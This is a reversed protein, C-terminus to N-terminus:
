VGDEANGFDVGQERCAAQVCHDKIIGVLPLEEDQMMSRRFHSVIISSLWGIRYL